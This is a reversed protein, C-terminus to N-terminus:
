LRAVEQVDVVGPIAKLMAAIAPSVSYRETLTLEVEQERDLGLVIQIEGRGDRERELAQRVQHLPRDDDIYIRLGDTRSQAVRELDEIRQATLRLNGDDFRAEATVLLPAGSELLPRAQAMVESFLTVEVMGSTDSLQVFAYRSGKASTREQKGLVTGAFRVTGAERRAREPLDAIRAVRLRSLLNRYGDLPHASLYFGIADFERRLAEVEPWAEVDPLSPRTASASLDDGFLSVQDSQREEAALAAHRTLMELGAVIRARDPFLADFAGACALAEIQRKNLLRHDIREALEFLDGFPGGAARAEVIADVVNRGVNRIAALAYRIGRRGDSLTEATFKAGSANVDPPLLPTEMRDLERKLLSLKDTSGMDHTMLAAMFEVPYNAKLYATQFAVLAYAAAHSKNFGYGAFKDVLDFIETAKAAPVGREVAGQVFSDRQAAMEAKNKKGMARRLLDAHGLSYGALVQAIQM